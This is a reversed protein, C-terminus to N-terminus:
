LNANRKSLIFDRVSEALYRRYRGNIGAEPSYFILVVNFTFPLMCVSSTSGEVGRSYMRRL